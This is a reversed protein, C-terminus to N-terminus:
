RIGPGHGQAAPITFEVCREGKYIACDGTNQELSVLYEIVEVVSVPHEVQCLNTKNTQQKNTPLTATCDLASELLM